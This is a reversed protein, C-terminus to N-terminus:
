EQDADDGPPTPTVRVRNLRPVSAFPATAFPPADDELDQSQGPQHPPVEIDPDSTLVPYVQGALAPDVEAEWDENAFQETAASSAYRIAHPAPAPAPVPAPSPATPSDPRASRDDPAGGPASEPAEAATEASEADTSAPAEATQGAAAAADTTGTTDAAADATDASAEPTQAAADATATPTDAAATATPTEQTEASATTTEASEAPTEAATEATGATDTSPETTPPMSEPASASTPESAVAASPSKPEVAENEETPPRTPGAPASAGIFLAPQERTVATGRGAATADGADDAVDAPAEAPVAPLAIPPAPPRPVAGAALVPVTDVASFMMPATPQGAQRDDAPELAPGPGLDAEPPRPRSQRLMTLFLSFALLVAVVPAAAVVSETPRQRLGYSAAHLVDTVGIAALVVLAVLWAWCRAWWRADRLMVAAVCAIVLLADFLAPYFRALQGSVGGQRAIAHVGPYSFVFMGAAVALVVIAVVVNALRHLWTRGSATRPQPSDARLGSSSASDPHREM